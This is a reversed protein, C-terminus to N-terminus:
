QTELHPLLRPDIVAAQGVGPAPPLWAPRDTDAWPAPTMPAEDHRLRRDLVAIHGPRDAPWTEGPELLRGACCPRTPHTLLRGCSLCLWEPTDAAM